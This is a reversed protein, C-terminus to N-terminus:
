ENTMGKLSMIWKVMKIADSFRHDKSKTELIVIIFNLGFKNYSAM